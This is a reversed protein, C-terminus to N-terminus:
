LVARFAPDAFRAKREVLQKARYEPDQWLSKGISKMKSKNKPKASWEQHKKTQLARFEPDQWSALKSARMKDRVGPKEVLGKLEETRREKYSPDQWRKKWYKKLVKSMAPSPLLCAVSHMVNFGRKRDCVCLNDIWWQERVWRQDLPCTEVIKGSFQDAGYKRWARQLYQNEHKGRTLAAWHGKLRHLGRKASGVYVKGTEVCTITYIDATAVSSM